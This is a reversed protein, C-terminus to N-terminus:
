QKFNLSQRTVTTFGDFCCISSLYVVCLCCIFSLYVVCLWCIFSLYVVCLCCIFSLYVVCLCCILLENSVDSHIGGFRNTSADHNHTHPSTSHSLGGTGSPVRSEVHLTLIAHSRFIQFFFFLFFSLRM